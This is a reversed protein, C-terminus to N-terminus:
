HEYSRLRERAHKWDFTGKRILFHAGKSTDAFMLRCVFCKVCTQLPSFCLWSRDFVEGNHNQRRILSTAPAYGALLRLPAIETINRLSNWLLKAVTLSIFYVKCFQQSLVTSSLIAKCRSHQKGFQVIDHHIFYPKLTAIAGGHIRGQSTSCIRSLNRDKRHQPAGHEFIVKWWLTLFVQKM